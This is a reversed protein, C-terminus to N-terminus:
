RPPCGAVGCGTYSLVGMMLLVAVSMCVGVWGLVLAILGTQEAEREGTLRAQRRLQTGLVVAIVSPVLFPVVIGLAGAVIALIGKTPDRVTTALPVTGTVTGQVVPGPTADVM